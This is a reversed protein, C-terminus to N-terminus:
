GRRAWSSRPAHMAHVMGKHRAKSRLDRKFTVFGILHDVDMFAGLVFSEPPDETYIIDKEFEKIGRHKEDEYSESFSLPSRRYSKLRLERYETLYRSTLLQIEVNM